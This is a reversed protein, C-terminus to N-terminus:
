STDCGVMNKCMSVPLYHAYMCLIEAKYGVAIFCFDVSKLANIIFCIDRVDLMTYM